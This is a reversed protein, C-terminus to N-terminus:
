THNITQLQFIISIDKSVALWSRPLDIFTWHLVWLQKLSPPQPYFEPPAGQPPRQCSLSRPLDIFIGLTICIYDFPPAAVISSWNSLSLPSPNSRQLPHEKPLTRAFFVQSPRYFDWLLVFLTLHHRPWM